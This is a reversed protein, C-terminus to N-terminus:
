SIESTIHNATGKRQRRNEENVAVIVARAAVVARQAITQKITAADAM